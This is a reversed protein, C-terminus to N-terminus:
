DRCTRGVKCASSGPARRLEQFIRSDLSHSMLWIWPRLELEYIHLGGAAGVNLFRSIIGHFFRSKGKKSKVEVSMPKGIMDYPSLEAKPSLVEVEFVFPRGLKDEGKLRRFIAEPGLPGHLEHISEAM